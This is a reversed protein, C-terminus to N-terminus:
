KDTNPGSAPGYLKRANLTPSFCAVFTIGPIPIWFSGAGTKLSLREFKGMKANASSEPVSLTTFPAPLSLGMKEGLLKQADREPHVLSCSALAALGGVSGAQTGLDKVVNRATRIVGSCSAEAFLTESVLAKRTYM